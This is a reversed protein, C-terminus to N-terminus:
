ELALENLYKSTGLLLIAFIWLHWDERELEEWDTQKKEPQARNLDIAALSVIREM